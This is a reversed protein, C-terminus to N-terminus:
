IARLRGRERLVKTWAMRVSKFARSRLDTVAFGTSDFTIDFSQHADAFVREIRSM